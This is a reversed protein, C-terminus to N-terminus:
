RYIISRWFVEVKKAPLTLSPSAAALVMGDEWLQFEECKKLLWEAETLQARYHGSTGGSELGEDVIFNYLCREAIEEISAIVPGYQEAEESSAADRLERMGTLLRTFSDYVRMWAEGLSLLSLYNYKNGSGTANASRLAFRLYEVRQHITIPNPSGPANVVVARKYMLETAREHFGHHGHWRYLLEEDQQLLYQEVFPENIRVLVEKHGKFLADCLLQHFLSDNNCLHISAMVMELM